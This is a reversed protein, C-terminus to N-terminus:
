FKAFAAGFDECKQMAEDNPREQVILGERFLQAGASRVSDEWDRMWQGDGWGYSGFLALKRNSLNPLLKAFFPEFEGSELEESGMAPCGLALLNCDLAAEPSIESVQYSKVEAGASHAGDAICDAMILTNGTMSWYVINIKQM